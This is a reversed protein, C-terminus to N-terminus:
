KPPIPDGIHTANATDGALGRPLNKAAKDINLVQYRAPASPADSAPDNGPAEETPASPRILAGAENKAAAKEYEKAGGRFVSCASLSLLVVASLLALRM